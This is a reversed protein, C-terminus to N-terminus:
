RQALRASAEIALARPWSRLPLKLQKGFDEQLTSGPSRATMGNGSYLTIEGVFLESPTEFFDVRAVPFPRALRAAFDIMRDLERLRAPITEHPRRGSRKPRHDTRWELSFYDILIENKTIETTVMVRDPEGDFCFLKYDTVRGPEGILQEAIVRPPIDKYAREFSYFYHNREPRLWESLQARAADVDFEARNTCVINMDYGGAVKLIFREPLADFDIAAPDEWDGLLPITHGPGVVEEVYGRMAFKDTVRTMLPDHHYLKLWQIKENFTKPRLLNPTTGLLAEFQRVIHERRDLASSIRGM